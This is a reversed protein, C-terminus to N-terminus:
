SPTSTTQTATPSDGSTQEIADAGGHVHDREVGGQLLSNDDNYGIRGKDFVQLFLQPSSEYTSITPGNGDTAAEGTAAVAAAAADGQTYRWGVNLLENVGQETLNAGWFQQRMRKEELYMAIASLLIVFVATAVLLGLGIWERTLWVIETATTAIVHPFTASANGDQVMGPATASGQENPRIILYPSLDYEYGPTECDALGHEDPEYRDQMTPKRLVLDQGFSLGTLTDWFDTRTMSMDLVAHCTLDIEYLPAVSLVPRGNSTWYAAYDAHIVFWHKM